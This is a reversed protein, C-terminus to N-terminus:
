EKLLIEMDHILDSTSWQLLTGFSSRWKFNKDILHVAVSHIVISTNNASTAVYIGYSKWIYNLTNLDKGLLYILKGRNIVERDVYKDLFNKVSNYDDGLFDVSILIMLFNEYGKEMLSKAASSFRSALVPCVDPCHSYVFTLAIVKGKYDSLKFTKNDLTILEFDVVPKNVQIGKLSEKQFPNLIFFIIIILIALVTIFVVKKM